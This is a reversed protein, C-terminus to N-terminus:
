GIFRKLKTYRFGDVVISKGDFPSTVEFSEIESDSVRVIWQRDDKSALYYLDKVDGLGYALEIAGKGFLFFDVVHQLWTLKKAKILQTIEAGPYKALMVADHKSHSQESKPFDNLSITERVATLITAQKYDLLTDLSVNFISAIKQLNDVDPIGSGAEWKAVAQRSVGMRSALQEQSWGAQNRLQKLKKSFVM